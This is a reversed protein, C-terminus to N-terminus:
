QGAEKSRLGGSQNQQKVKEELARLRLELSSTQKEVAQLRSEVANFKRGYYEEPPIPAVIGNREEVPWDPPLKFNLGKSSKKELVTEDTDKEAAHAFPVVGVALLVAAAWGVRKRCRIM